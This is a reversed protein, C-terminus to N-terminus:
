SHLSLKDAAVGSSNNRFPASQRYRLEHFLQSYLMYQCVDMPQARVASVTVVSGSASTGSVVSSLLSMQQENARM